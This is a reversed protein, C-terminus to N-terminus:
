YGQSLTRKLKTILAISYEVAMDAAEEATRGAFCPMMAKAVDALYSDWSSNNKGKAAKNQSLPLTPAQREEFLKCHDGVGKKQKLITCFGDKNLRVCDICTM